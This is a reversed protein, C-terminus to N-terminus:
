FYYFKGIDDEARDISRKLLESVLEIVEDGVAFSDSIIELL